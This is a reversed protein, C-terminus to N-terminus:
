EVSRGQLCGDLAQRAVRWTGQARRYAERQRALQATRAPTAVLLEGARVREGLRQLEQWAAREALRLQQVPGETSQDVHRGTVRAPRERGDEQLM